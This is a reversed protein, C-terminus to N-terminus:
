KSNNEFLFYYCNLIESFTNVLSYYKNIYQVETEKSIRGQLEKLKDKLEFKINKIIGYINDKMMNMFTSNIERLCYVYKDSDNNSDEENKVKNIIKVKNVLEDLIEEVELAKLCATQSIQYINLNLNRQIIKIIRIHKSSFILKIIKEISNYFLDYKVIDKNITVKNNEKILLKDYDLNDHPLGDLSTKEDDKLEYSFNESKVVKKFINYYQYNMSIFIRYFNIIYEKFIIRNLLNYNIKFIEQSKTRIDNINNQEEKEIHNNTTILGDKILIDFDNRTFNIGKPNQDDEFSYYGYELIYEIIKLYKVGYISNFYYCYRSYLLINLINDIKLIIDENQGKIEIYDLNIFRTFLHEFNNMNAPKNLIYKDKLSKKTIAKNQIQFNIIEKIITASEDNIQEQILFILLDALNKSIKNSM